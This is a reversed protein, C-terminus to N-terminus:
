KGDVNGRWLYTTGGTNSWMQMNGLRVEKRLAAGLKNPHPMHRTINLGVKPYKHPNGFEDIGDERNKNELEFERRILSLVQGVEMPKIIKSFARYVVPHFAAAKKSIVNKWTM